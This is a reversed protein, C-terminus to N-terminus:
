KWALQGLSGGVLAWARVRQPQHAGVGIVVAAIGLVPALVRITEGLGGAPLVLYVATLVAAAAIVIRARLAM